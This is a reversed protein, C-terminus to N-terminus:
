TTVTVEVPPQVSVTCTATKLWFLKVTKTLEVLGAPQEAAFPCAIKCLLKGAVKAHLSPPAPAVRLM